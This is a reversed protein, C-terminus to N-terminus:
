GWKMVYAAWNASTRRLVIKASWTLIAATDRRTMTTASARTPLHHIRKRTLFLDDGEELLMDRLVDNLYATGTVTRLMLNMTVAETAMYLDPVLVVPLNNPDRLTRHQRRDQAREEIAVQFAFVETERVVIFANTASHCAQNLEPSVDGAVRCTSMRSM